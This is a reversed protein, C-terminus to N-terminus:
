LETSLKLLSGFYILFTQRDFFATKVRRGFIKNACADMLKIRGFIKNTCADM